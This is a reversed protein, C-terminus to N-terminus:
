GEHYRSRTACFFLTLLSLFGLIAELGLFLLGRFGSIMFLILVVFFAVPAAVWWGTRNTDHLRRVCVGALVFILALAITVMINNWISVVTRNYDGIIKVISVPINNIYFICVFLLFVLPSATMWFVKRSCRGKFDYMKLFINSSSVNKEVHNIKKTKKGNSFIERPGSGKGGAHVALPNLLDGVTHTREDKLKAMAKVITERTEPSVNEPLSKRIIDANIDTSIIPNKGTLMYLLTAALAYIDAEPTFTTIGAYQEMPSYGDSCGLAKITSTPKGKANYHKSLGFDILVPQGNERILINDPKIDLHTIQNEHLYKITEAVPCFLQLAEAEDLCGAQSNRVYDRLSMGNIYEMVYYATDNAQFCENVRVINSHNLSIQSLRKAETIFSDMSEEAEQRNNENSIIVSTGHRENMTSIYHEKIAFMVVVPINEVFVKSKALYTIGFGGQGLVSLIEYKRVGSDLLTGVPLAEMKTM